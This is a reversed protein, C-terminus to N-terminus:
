QGENEAASFNLDAPSSTVWLSMSKGRENRVQSLMQQHTKLYQHYVDSYVLISSRLMIWAHIMSNYSISQVEGGYHLEMPSLLERCRRLHYGRCFCRIQFNTACVQKIRFHRRIPPRDRAASPAVIRHTGQRVQGGSYLYCRETTLPSPLSHGQGRVGRCGAPTVSRQEMPSCQGTQGTYLRVSWQSCCRRRCNDM